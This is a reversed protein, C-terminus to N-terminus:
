VNNDKRNFKNMTKEIGNVIFSNIIEKFTPYLEKFIELENKSFKGLVYDKTDIQKNNSIGIKLRTFNQNGLENIISKIGNHGGNSSNTKLRYKGVALDLDDQIILIDKLEIKYFNIFQIVAHGSLNMYTLPKILLIKEGNMNLETYLSNWKEKWNNNDAYYDLVMFGINHRTNEYDKGPNGLGVILKM